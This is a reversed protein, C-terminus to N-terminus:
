EPKSEPEVFKEAEDIARHIQESTELEFIQEKATAGPRTFSCESAIRLLFARETFSIKICPGASRAIRKGLRRFVEKDDSKELTMLHALRYLQLLAEGVTFVKPKGKKDLLQEGKPGTMMIITEGDVDYIPKTVYVLYEEKFDEKAM